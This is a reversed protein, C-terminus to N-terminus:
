KKEQSKAHTLQRFQGGEIIDYEEELVGEFIMEQTIDQKAM